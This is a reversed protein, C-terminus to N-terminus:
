PLGLYIQFHSKNKNKKKMKLLFVLFKFFCRFAFLLFRFSFVLFRFSIHFDFSFVLFLSFIGRTKKGRRFFDKTPSSQFHFSFFDEQTLESLSLSLSLLSEHPENTCM